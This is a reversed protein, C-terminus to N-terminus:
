KCMFVTDHQGCFVKIIWFSFAKSNIVRMWGTQISDNISKNDFDNSSVYFILLKEEEKCNQNLM